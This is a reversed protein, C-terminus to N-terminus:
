RAPEQSRGPRPVRRPHILVLTTLVAIFALVASVTLVARTGDAVARSGTGTGDHLTFIAGLAATGVGAGLSALTSVTGAVMGVREPETVQVAVAMVPSGAIGGGAGWALLPGLLAWWPTSPTILLALALFGTCM